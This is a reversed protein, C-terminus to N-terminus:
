YVESVTDPQKLSIRWTDAQRGHGATITLAIKGEKDLEKLMAKFVGYGQGGKGKNTLKNWLNTKTTSTTQMLGFEYLIDEKMDFANSANTSRHDVDLHTEHHEERVTERATREQATLTRAYKCGPFGKCGVFAAYTHGDRTRGPPISRLQKGCEPCNGLDQEFWPMSVEFRPDSARVSYPDREADRLQQELEAAWERLFKIKQELATLTDM